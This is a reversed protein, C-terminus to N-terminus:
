IQPNAEWGKACLLVQNWRGRLAESQSRPVQPLDDIYLVTASDM